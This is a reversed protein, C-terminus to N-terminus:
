PARNWLRLVLILDFLLHVISQDLHFEMNFGSIFCLHYKLEHYLDGEQSHGLSQEGESLIISIPRTAGIRQHLRPQVLGETREALRIRRGMGGALGKLRRHATGMIM